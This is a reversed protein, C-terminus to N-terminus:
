RGDGCRREDDNIVSRCLPHLPVRDYGYPGYSYTDCRGLLGTHERDRRHLLNIGDTLLGNSRCKRYRRKEVADVFHRLRRREADRKPMEAMFSMKDYVDNIEQEKLQCEFRLEYVMYYLKEIEVTLDYIQRNLYEETEYPISERGKERFSNNNCM